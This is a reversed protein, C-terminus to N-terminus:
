TADRPGQWRAPEPPAFRLAGVPPAAYPIACFRSVGGERLGTLLGARLRVQVSETM